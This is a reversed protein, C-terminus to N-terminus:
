AGVEVLASFFSITGSYNGAIESLTKGYLAKQNFVLTIDEANGEAAKGFTCIHYGFSNPEASTDVLYRASDALNEETVATYYFSYEFKQPTDTGQQTIYFNNDESTAASDKAYVSVAQNSKINLQTAEVKLGTTFVYSDVESEPQTLTGFDAKDPITIIYSVSGPDVINATVETSNNPTVDTLTAASASVAATAALVASLIAAILKKTKM